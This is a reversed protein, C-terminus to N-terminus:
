EAFRLNDLRVRDPADSALNVALHVQADAYNGALAAVAPATLSFSATSFAGRTLPTLEVQGIYEHVLGASPVSIYAQVAGAYGSEPQAEPVFVDVLLTNGLDPFDSKAFQVSSLETYGGFDVRMSAFGETFLETDVSLTGQSAIWEGVDEFATLLPFPTLDALKWPANLAGPKNSTDSVHDETARYFQCEDRVIQGRHYTVEVVSSSDEWARIPEVGEGVGGQVSYSKWPVVLTCDPVLFSFDDLRFTYLAGNGLEGNAGGLKEFLAGVVM